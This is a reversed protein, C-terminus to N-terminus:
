NTDGGTFSFVGGLSDGTGNSSDKPTDNDKIDDGDKQNAQTHWACVGIEGVFRTISGSGGKSQHKLKSTDIDASIYNICDDECTLIQNLSRFQVSLFM